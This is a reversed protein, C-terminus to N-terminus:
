RKNAPIYRVKAMMSILVKGCYQSLPMKTTTRQDDVILFLDPHAWKNEACDIPQTSFLVM